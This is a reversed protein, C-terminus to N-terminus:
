ISPPRYKQSLRQVSDLFRELGGSGLIVKELDHFQEAMHLTEMGSLMEEILPLLKSNEKRIHRRLLDVYRDARERFGNRDARISTHINMLDFKLREIGMRAQRHDEILSSILSDMKATQTRSLAPFLLQEEKGHHYRDVYIEFFEMLANLDQPDGQSLDALTAFCKQLVALMRLTTGHEERLVDKPNMHTETEARKHDADRALQWM